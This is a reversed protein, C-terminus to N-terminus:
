IHIAYVTLLCHLYQFEGTVSILGDTEIDWYATTATQYGSGARQMIYCTLIYKFPKNMKQFEKLCQVMIQQCWGNVKETQFYMDPSLVNELVQRAMVGLEDIVLDEDELAM